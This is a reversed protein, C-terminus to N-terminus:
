FINFNVDCNMGEKIQEASTILLILLVSFLYSYEHAEKERRM